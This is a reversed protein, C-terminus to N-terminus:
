GKKGYPNRRRDYYHATLRTMERMDRWLPLLEQIRRGLAEAEAPDAGVQALRLELIRHHIQDAGQAYVTSLELLTM